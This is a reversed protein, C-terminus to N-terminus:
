TTTEITSATTGTNSSNGIPVVKMVIYEQFAVKIDKFLVGYLVPNLSYLVVPIVVVSLIYLTTYYKGPLFVAFLAGLCKPVYTLLFCFCLVFLKIVTVRERAQRKASIQNNAAHVRRSSRRLKIYIGLYMMVCVFMLVLPVVTSLLYFILGVFVNESFFIVINSPLAYVFIEGVTHAILAITFNFLWIAAIIVPQYKAMLLWSDEKNLIVRVFSQVASIMFSGMSAGLATRTIVLM